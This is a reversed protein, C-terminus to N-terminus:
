ARSNKFSGTHQFVDCDNQDLLFPLTQDVSGNDMFAFRKVGIERYHKLFHPLLEMEDRVNCIVIGESTAIAASRITKLHPLAERNSAGLRQLEQVLHANTIM